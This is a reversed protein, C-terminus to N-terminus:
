TRSIAIAKRFRQTLEGEAILPFECLAFQSSVGEYSVDRRASMSIAAAGYPM